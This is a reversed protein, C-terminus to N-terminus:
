INNNVESGNDFVRIIHPLGAEKAESLTRLNNAERPVLIWRWNTLMNYENVFQTRIIFHQEFFM